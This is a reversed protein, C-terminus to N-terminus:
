VLDTRSHTSLTNRPLHLPLSSRLTLKRTFWIQNFLKVKIPEPAIFNNPVHKKNEKSLKMALEVDGPSIGTQNRYRRSSRGDQDNQNKLKEKWAKLRTEKDVEPEILVPQSVEIQAPSKIVQTEAATPESTTPSVSESNEQNRKYRRTRRAASYRFTYLYDWQDFAIFINLGTQFSIPDEFISVNKPLIIWWGLNCLNPRCFTLM